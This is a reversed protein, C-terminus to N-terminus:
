PLKLFAKCIALPATDAEVEPELDDGYTSWGCIWCGRGASYRITFRDRKHEVIEWAAAISRAYDAVFPFEKPRIVRGQDDRLAERVWYGTETSPGPPIKQWGLRLAVQENIADLDDTM